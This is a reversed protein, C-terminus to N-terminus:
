LGGFNRMPAYFLVNISHAFNEGARDPEKGQRKAALSGKSSGSTDAWFHEGTFSQSMIGMEARGEGEPRHVHELDREVVPVM